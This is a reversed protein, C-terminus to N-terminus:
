ECHIVFRFDSCATSVDAGADYPRQGGRCFEFRDDWSTGPELDLFGGGYSLWVDVPYDVSRNHWSLVVFQGPPVRLAVPRVEMNCFNDVFIDIDRTGDFAICGGAALEFGPSCSGVPVCAGDGGDHSVDCDARLVGDDCLEGPELRGNGCVPPPPPPAADPLPPPPPSAADPLPPPPPPAADLSVADPPPPPPAAGDRDSGPGDADPEASAADETALPADPDQLAADLTPLAGQDARGGGGSPGFGNGSDRDQPVGSLTRPGGSEDSCGAVLALLALQRGISNV